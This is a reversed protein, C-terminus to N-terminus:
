LNTKTTQKMYYTNTKISYKNPLTKKMKVTQIYLDTQQADLLVDLAIKRDQILKSNIILQETIDETPIKNAEQIIKQEAESLTDNTYAATNDEQQTSDTTPKHSYEM